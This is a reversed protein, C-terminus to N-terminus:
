CSWWMCDAAIWVCYLRGFVTCICCQQSVPIPGCYTLPCKTPPSITNRKKTRQILFWSNLMKEDSHVKLPGPTFTLRLLKINSRKLYCIQSQSETEFIEHVNVWVLWFFFTSKFHQGPENLTDAHAATMEVLSGRAPAGAAPSTTAHLSSLLTDM